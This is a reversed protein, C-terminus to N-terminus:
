SIRMVAMMGTEQHELIHCHIMWDGPNDAVFAIEMRRGPAILVTDSFPRDPSGLVRFAIGHLHMPHHFATQNDIEIVYSAGRRLKFLPEHVHGGRHAHGNLTWIEGARAREGIRKREEADARMLAPSAAGGELVLKLREARALDPDAVPNPRPSQAATRVPGDRLMPLEYSLDVLRYARDWEDIVRHRSGDQGIADIVLDARMGPGLVIGDPVQRPPVPHGDLAILVPFHGEVKLKYIRANAANLLRLRIREGRRVPFSEAVRGNLLVTNGIRGDHTRDRPHAFDNTIKAQRDLRFDSLVWVEDRDAFPPEPEEVVLAGYLGRGLQSSSNAHPHYWYTGADPVRFEYDFSGGPAVAKQTLDPVGDMANPLRIGHWHVTSPEALRNEYRVRLTSGQKVRLVPGPLSGNFALVDTDLDKVGVVNLRAPAAVLSVDNGQAQTPLLPSAALAAGGALFARRGVKV